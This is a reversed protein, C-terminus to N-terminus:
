KTAPCDPFFITSHGRSALIGTMGDMLWSHTGRFKLDRSGKTQPGRSSSDM